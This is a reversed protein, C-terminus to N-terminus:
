VIIRVLVYYIIFRSISKAVAKYAALVDLTSAEFASRLLV